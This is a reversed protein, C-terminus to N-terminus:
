PAPRARRKRPKTGARLEDLGQGTRVADVYEAGSTTRHKWTGFASRLTAQMQAPASAALYRDDIAERILHSRTRGTRKAERDLAVAEPRTLYIQTREVIYTYMTVGHDDVVTHGRRAGPASTHM